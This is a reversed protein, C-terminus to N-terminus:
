GQGANPTATRDIIGVAALLATLVQCGLLVKANNPFLIKAYELGGTLATGWWTKSKLIDPVTINKLM